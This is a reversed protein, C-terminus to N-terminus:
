AVFPLYTFIGFWNDPLPENFVNGCCLISPCCVSNELGDTGLLQLSFQHSWALETHSETFFPSLAQFQLIDVTLLRHWTADIPSV